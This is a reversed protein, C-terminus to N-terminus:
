FAGLKAGGEFFHHQPSFAECPGQFDFVLITQSTVFPPGVGPLFGSVKLRDYDFQVEVLVKWCTESISAKTSKFTAPPSRNSPGPIYIYIYSM